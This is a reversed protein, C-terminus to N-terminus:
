TFVEDSLTYEDLLLYREDTHDGGFDLVNVNITFLHHSLDM